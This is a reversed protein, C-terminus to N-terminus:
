VFDAICTQKTKRSGVTSMWAPKAKRLHCSVETTRCREAAVEELGGFPESIDTYPPPRLLPVPQTSQNKDCASCNVEDGESDLNLQSLSEECLDGMLDEVLAEAM